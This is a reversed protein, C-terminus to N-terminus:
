QLKSSSSATYTEVKQASSIDQTKGDKGIVKIVVNNRTPDNLDEVDSHVPNDTQEAYQKTLNFKIIPSDERQLGLSIVNRQIKLKLAAKAAEFIHTFPTLEDAKINFFRTIDKIRIAGDHMTMGFVIDCREDFDANEWVAFQERWSNNKKVKHAPSAADEKREAIVEAQARLEEKTQHKAPRDSAKPQETGDLEIIPKKSDSM